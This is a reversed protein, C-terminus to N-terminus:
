SFYGTLVVKAKLNAFYFRRLCSRPGAMQGPRTLNYVFGHILTEIRM